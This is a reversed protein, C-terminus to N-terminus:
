KKQIIQIAKCLLYLLSINNSKMVGSIVGIQKSSPQIESLVYQTVPDNVMESLIKKKDNASLNANKSNNRVAASVVHKIHNELVQQKCEGDYVGCKELFEKELNFKRKALNFFDPNYSSALTVHTPKRYNYFAKNISRVSTAKDFVAINFLFDEILKTQEFSIGANNLFNRSYAKNCAYQFVRNNSLKKFMEGMSIKSDACFDEPSLVEVRVTKGLDNEYCLNMGYVLIDPSGNLSKECVELTDFAITDDSDVFLIYDGSAQAMGTNRAYGLGENVQKHIVRICSNEQALRDCIAPCNDPSKDDVLIIEFDTFTQSLLSYVCEELYKEVGYVPVIVSFRM